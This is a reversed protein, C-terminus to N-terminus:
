PQGGEQTGACVAFLLSASGYATKIMATGKEGTRHKMEEFEKKSPFKEGGFGNWESQYKKWARHRSPTHSQKKEHSLRAPNM